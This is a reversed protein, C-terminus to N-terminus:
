NSSLSRGSTVTSWTRGPMLKRRSVRSSPIWTIRRKTTSAHTYRVELIFAIKEDDKDDKNDKVVVDFIFVSGDPTCFRYEQETSLNPDRFEYVKMLKSCCPCVLNFVWEHLHDVLCAKGRAHQVSEGKRKTPAPSDPSDSSASSALRTLERRKM